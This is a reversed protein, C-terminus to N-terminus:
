NSTAIYLSYLNLKSRFLNMPENIIDYYDPFEEADVADVFPELTCKVKDDVLERFIKYASRVEPTMKGWVAVLVPLIDEQSKPKSRGDSRKRSDNENSLILGRDVQLNDYLSYRQEIRAEM